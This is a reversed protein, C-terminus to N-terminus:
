TQFFLRPVVREGIGIKIIAQSLIVKIIFDLADGRTALKRGAANNRKIMPQPPNIAKVM